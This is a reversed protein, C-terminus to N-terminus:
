AAIEAKEANKQAERAAKAIERNRAIERAIALRDAFFQRVNEQFPVGNMAANLSKSIMRFPKASSGIADWLENKGAKATIKAASKLASDFRQLYSELLSEVSVDIHTVIGDKEAANIADIAGAISSPLDKVKLYACPDKEILVKQWQEGDKLAKALGAELSLNVMAKKAEAKVDKDTIASDHVQASLYERKRNAAKIDTKIVEHSKALALLTNSVTAMVDLKDIM